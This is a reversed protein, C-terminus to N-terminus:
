WHEYRVLKEIVAKRDDVVAAAAAMRYPVYTDTVDSDLISHLEDNRLAAFLVLHRRALSVLLDLLEEAADFTTRFGCVHWPDHDQSVRVSVQSARSVRLKFSLNYQAGETIGFRRFFQPMNPTKGVKRITLRTVRKGTLSSDDAAVLSWEGQSVGDHQLGWDPYNAANAPTKPFQGDPVM